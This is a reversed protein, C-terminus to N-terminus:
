GPRRRGGLAAQINCAHGEGAAAFVRSGPTAALRLRELMYPERLQNSEKSMRQTLLEDRTPDHWDTTVAAPDWRRKLARECVRGLDASTTTAPLGALPAYRQIAWAVLDGPPQQDPPRPNFYALVRVTMFLLVEERSHRLALRRVEEAEPLDMSQCPIGRRVALWCLLGAEGGHTIATAKDPSAGAGDGEVLILTPSFAAVRRELELLVPDSPETRHRAGFLVLAAGDRELEVVRLAGEGRGNCSALAVQPPGADVQPAFLLSAFAAMFLM